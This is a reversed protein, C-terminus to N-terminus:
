SSHERQSRVDDTSVLVIKICVYSLTLYLNIVKVEQSTEFNQHGKFFWGSEMKSKFAMKYYLCVLNM